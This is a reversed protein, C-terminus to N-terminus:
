DAYNPPPPVPTTDDEENEEVAIIISGSELDRICATIQFAALGAFVAILKLSPEILGLSVCLLLFGILWLMTKTLM